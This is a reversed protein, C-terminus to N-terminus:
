QHDKGIGVGHGGPRVEGHMRVAGEVEGIIHSLYQGVGIGHEAAQAAIDLLVALEPAIVLDRREHLLALILQHFRFVLDHGAALIGAIDRRRIVQALLQGRDLKVLHAAFHM